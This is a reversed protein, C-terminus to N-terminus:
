APLESVKYEKYAENKLKDWGDDRRSVGADILAKESITIFESKTKFSGDPLILKKVDKGEVTTTQIAGNMKTDAGGGGQSGDDKLSIDKIADMTSLVEFANQPKFTTKNMIVKKDADLFMLDGEEIKSNALMSREASEKAIKQISEPIDPNMKLKSIATAIATKKQFTVAAGQSELITKEFGEKEGKWTIKAADFIEQVHKGGGEEKLTKIEGKLLAIAPDKELSDKKDLLVKHQGYVTKLFDYTKEKKGDVVAPRVGLIAFVDDDYQTHINKVEDDIKSKYTAESKNTILTQMEDGAVILPLIDNKYEDLKIAEAFNDKTIEM